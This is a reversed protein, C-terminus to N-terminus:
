LHGPGGSSGHGAPGLGGGLFCLSVTVGWLAFTALSELGGVELCVSSDPGSFGFFCESDVGFRIM